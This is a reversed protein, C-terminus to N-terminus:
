GKILDVVKEGIMVCSAHTTANVVRPMISADAVRLADVGRVKLTADVVARRDSGMRCTGASHYITDVARRIFAEVAPRANTGSGPEAEDGRVAAFAKTAGFERVLRVGEVLMAVDSPEQLYNGRIVPPDLPNSSRLRVEGRSNPRQLAITITAFPDPEDLGRGVYFQLDPPTTTQSRNSRVFLGASVTSPPLTQRGRWRISIKLHDQLNGGVGPLNVVVRLGLARLHDAPGIGSLMLLKPSDVVGSCLIVERAARAQERQGNRVYEIGVVRPGEMMLRSAQARDHVTLNSRSLAPALFAAAASHRRGDKINKQYYGAGGEQQAGNFDWDPRAQYGLERAAELFAEHAVHPDTTDSVALLGAAGHFESAGRSNAESRKFIPLLDQYGWGPNGRDRWEDFDLRHGRVFTMANIASSGGFVKGRPFTIRRDGLGPEPETTYGWDWPSGILSVWRGPTNVAPDGNDPGGAEVLLVRTTPDASLRHVVVCGSSGAGVVIYDFETSRTRVSSFRVTSALPAAAMTRIFDRRKMNQM